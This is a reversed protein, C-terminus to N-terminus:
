IKQNFQYFNHGLYLLALSLKVVIEFKGYYAYIQM